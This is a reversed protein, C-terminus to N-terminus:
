QEAKFTIGDMSTWDGIGVNVVVDGNPMVDIRAPNNNSLVSFVSIGGPRCGPPLKFVTLGAPNGPHSVMGRIHVFGMKDKMYAVTNYGFGLNFFSNILTPEIYNGTEITGKVTVNGSVLNVSMATVSDGVFRFENSSGIYQLGWTPFSPSHSLIMRSAAGDEMFYMARPTNKVHIAGNIDVGFKNSVSFLNDPNNNNVGVRGNGAIRMREVGNTQFLVNGNSGKGALGINQDTASGAAYITNRGIGIGQTGDTHRIEVGNSADGLAGTVYLPRGASAHTGSRIAGAIDVKHTPQYVGMGINGNPLIRFQNLGNNAYLAFPHNSVTGIEGGSDAIWTSLKVVGNSHTIGYRNNPTNVELKTSPNMTGIGVSDAMAMYIKGPGNRFVETDLSNTLEVWEGTIRYWFSNTTNDFVLLGNQPSAIQNREATSMRPILIGKSTSNIDLIASENATSTGIALSGNGQLRAREIGNTSFLLNGSSGKAGLGLDQHTNSGAAYITNKGFGIGQQGDASRIEPGNAADAQDGTVYFPRNTAHSGTRTAGHVIDMQNLPDSNRVGIKGGGTIRFLEVSNNADQAAYFVHSATTADVQYRLTSPNIGLGYFQHDNAYLDYLLLKRNGVSTAFQLFASENILIRGSANIQFREVDNTKFRLSGIDGKALFSLDGYELWGSASIGQDFIAVGHQGYKDRFDAITQGYNGGTVYLSLNTGDYTPNIREQSAVDLKNKPNTVGIGVNGSLGLSTSNNYSVQVTSGDTIETWAGSKYFWFSKTDTDYAMLGEAPQDMYTRQITTLRPMLLGKNTSKIELLASPHPDTTGIGVRGTVPSTSCTSFCNVESLTQNIVTISQPSWAESYSVTPSMIFESNPDHQCGFNHGMEHAQLNRLLVMVDTFSQNICYADDCMVDVWALGIVNGDLDRNTWLAGIDHTVGFGNQNAWNTFSNLLQDYNTGTYWPSNNASTYVYIVKAKMFLETAFENDYKTNVLNLVALNFLLVNGVESGCKQYMLYDNALAVEIEKCAVSNRNGGQNPISSIEKGTGNSGCMADKFKKVLHHENYIVFDNESAGPDIKNASEIFISGNPSSIMATFFNDDATIAVPLHDELTYGYYTVNSTLEQPQPGNGDDVLLMFGEARIDRAELSFTYELKDVIIKMTDFQDRSRLLTVIQQQDISGLNYQSFYDRFAGENLSSRTPEFRIIAQGTMVNSLCFGAVIMIFRITAPHINKM